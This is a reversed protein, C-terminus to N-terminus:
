NLREEAQIKIVIITTELVWECIRKERGERSLPISFLFFLITGSAHM